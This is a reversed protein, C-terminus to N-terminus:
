RATSPAVHVPGQPTLEIEYRPIFTQNTTRAGQISELRFSRHADKNVDHAHLIIHGESTRRLSYPEIRRTSRNGSLDVYDMEVCLRNAAAFRIIEISSRATGSVPLRLTRERLIKEGAGITFAAPVEPAAGGNLWDLFEPLVDWFTDVPPLAPLQHALMASWAGEMDSKHPELDALTPVNIGKFECKQRLVDLLVSASPRADANRFLNIVDYLDRPRMREALARIKEGFAEEYAYSHVMIHEAPADSYPHYIPLQVAPLVVLEDATLDLKIRPLNKGQPSVPGRYSIKGQCSLNGRPNTFIEFDQRDVPLEIGTEEYIQESIEAFVPKLFEENIHNKDTLTFDLDESFRYTEFFCKKLCTGGKFIWNEALAKHRYIGSLMWGLVYDKEVVHPNLGLATAADIIERRDILTVEPLRAKLFGCAGNQFL